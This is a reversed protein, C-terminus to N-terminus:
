EQERRLLHLEEMELQIQRDAENQHRERRKEKLRDVVKRTQRAKLLISRQLDIRAELQRIRAALDVIKKELSTAYRRYLNVEESTIIKKETMEKQTGILALQLQEKENHFRLRDSMLESLRIEEVEERHRRLRLCSELRFVFKKM